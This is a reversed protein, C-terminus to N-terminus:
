QKVEKESQALIEKILNRFDDYSINMYYNSPKLGDKDPLPIAKKSETDPLIASITSSNIKLSRKGSAPDTQLEFRGQHGGVPSTFGYQSEPYLFLVIEEGEKYSPTEPTERGHGFQMFALQPVVDGKLVDFVELTVYTAKVNQYQPHFGMKIGVCRGAVIKGASRTMKELSVQAVMGEVVKFSCLFTILFLFCFGKKM